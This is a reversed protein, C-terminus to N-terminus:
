PWGDIRSQGAGPLRLRSQGSECPPAHRELTERGRRNPRGPMRGSSSHGPFCNLPQMTAIGSAAEQLLWHKARSMAISWPKPLSCPTKPKPGCGVRQHAQAGQDVLNQGHGPRWQPLRKRRGCTPTPGIARHHGRGAPGCPQNLIARPQPRPWLTTPRWMRRAKQRNSSRAPRDKRKTTNGWLRTPARWGLQAWILEPRKELVLRYLAQSGREQQAEALNSGKLQPAQALWRNQAAIPNDCRWRAKCTTASSNTLSGCSGPASKWNCKPAPRWHRSSHSPKLLYADPHHETAAAM